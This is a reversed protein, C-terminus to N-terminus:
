LPLGLRNALAISAMLLDSPGILIGQRAFFARLTGYQDAALDDFPLSVFQQRLSQLRRRNSAQQAPAAREVGYNSEGVVISCIALDSAKEKKIRAVINPQNGRLWGICTKSDLLYKM